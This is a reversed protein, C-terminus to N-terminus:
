AANMRGYGGTLAGSGVSCESRRAELVGAVDGDRGVTWGCLSGRMSYTLRPM